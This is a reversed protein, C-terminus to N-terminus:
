RKAIMFKVYNSLEEWESDSFETEGIEDKWRNVFSACYIRELELKEADDIKSEDFGLLYPVSVGFFEAITELRDNKPVRDFKLWTSYTSQNIGIKQCIDVITAKREKRLFEIRELVDNM